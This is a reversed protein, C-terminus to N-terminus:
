RGPSRRVAAEPAPTAQRPPRVGRFARNPATGRADREPASTPTRSPHAPATGSGRVRTAAGGTTDPRAEPAQRHRPEARRPPRSLTIQRVVQQFCILSALGPLAAAAADTLTRPAQMVCLVMAIHSFLLVVAWSHVARRRHLAARLVSLSAVLWPGYVLLPWWALVGPSSRPDATLRLPEYAAVGSFLSVSAAILAASAAIGLSVARLGGIPQRRNRRRSRRRPRPPPEDATLQRPDPPPTGTVPAPARHEEEHVAAPVDWAEHLYSALEEAPDWDPPPPTLLEGVTDPAYPVGFVDAPLLFEADPARHRGTGDPGPRRDFPGQGHHAHPTSPERHM